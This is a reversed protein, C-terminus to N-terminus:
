WVVPHLLEAQFVLRKHQGRHQQLGTKRSHSTTADMARRNTDNVNNHGPSPNNYCRESNRNHHLDRNSLINCFGCNAHDGTSSRVSGDAFGELFNSSRAHYDISPFVSFRPCGPNGVEVGPLFVPVSVASPAPSDESVQLEAVDAASEAFALGGLSPEAIAAEPSSQELLVVQDPSPEVLLAVVVRSPQEVLVVTEPSPTEMWAVEVPFPRTALAVTEPFLGALADEPFSQAMQAVM